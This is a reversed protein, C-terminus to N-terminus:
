AFPPQPPCHDVPTVPTRSTNFVRPGAASSSTLPPSFLGGNEAGSRAAGAATTIRRELLERGPHLFLSFTPEMPLPHVVVGRGALHLPSSVLTEKWGSRESEAPPFSSAPAPTEGTDSATTRSLPSAPARRAAPEPRRRLKYPFKAKERVAIIEGRGRALSRFRSM